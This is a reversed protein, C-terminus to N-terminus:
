EIIQMIEDLSKKPPQQTTNNFPKGLALLSVIKDKSDLNLISKFAKYAIIPACMWCTGYGLETAALSMNEIAAGMSLLSSDPKYLLVEEYPLDYSKLIETIASKRQTEVCAIVVPADKFFTSFTKYKNISNIIEEDNEDVKNKFEEYACIVADAMKQKVDKNYIAIFKWNQSNTASPAVRACDIIKKIDELPPNEESYKRITKRKYVTEFFEM